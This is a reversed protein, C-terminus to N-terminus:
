QVLPSFEDRASLPVILVKTPAVVSPLSLVGREVDQERAWFSHELLTYLIRGLGFSPEIVNPTFERISQKLTKREITLLEPTLRFDKGEPSTVTTTGNALESKLRVLESELLEEVIKQLVGADAKFTKGLAKKNWE